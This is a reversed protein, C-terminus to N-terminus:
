IDIWHPELYYIYRGLPLLSSTSEVIITPSTDTALYTIGGTVMGSLSKTLIWQTANDSLVTYEEWNGNPENNVITGKYM